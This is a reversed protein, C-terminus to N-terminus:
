KLGRSKLRQLLISPGIKQQIQDVKQLRCEIDKNFQDVHDWYYALASYIQGVTLYPHQLHIEEPSWGYAMTEIVLEVVKTTTSSIVPVKDEGVVIHEYRTAMLSM